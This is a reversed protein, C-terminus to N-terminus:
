LSGHGWFNSYGGRSWFYLLIGMQGGLFNLSVGHIRQSFRFLWKIRGLFRSFFFTHVFIQAKKNRELIHFKVGFL